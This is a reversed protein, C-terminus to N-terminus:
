KTNAHTRSIEIITQAVTQMGEVTVYEYKGHFNHGANFLNPTPIGKETLFNGDTGGRFPVINPKLGLTDYAKLALKVIAPNKKIEEGINSYQEKIEIKVREQDYRDNIQQALDKLLKKKNAFLQQDFDRIILELHAHDPTSEQRTVMIFGQRGRSKEPVEALPLGAVLEHALSSANVMLHYADGPHVATGEIEVTAAAANFTEYELDGPQGNDLTYAFEVPFETEDFRKAGQGIEEDPGFAVYLPGHKIEPQTVLSQVAALLAAVGAKDDAGLLTTGDTTILCQGALDKLEPFEAVRLIIQKEENLIVDRGDYDPHVQPSVNDAPYDATDLHAFFGVASIKKDCNGPVYGLAYGNKENYWAKLGLKKLDTVVRKALDIQGPTSPITQSQADSRTNYRCYDIFQQELYNTDIEVM